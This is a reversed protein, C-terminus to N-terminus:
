EVGTFKTKSIISTYLDQVQSYLTIITTLLEPEPQQNAQILKKATELADALKNQVTEFRSFLDFLVAFKKDVADMQARGDHVSPASHAISVLAAERSQRVGDQIAELTTVSVQNVKLATELTVSSAPAFSSVCGTSLCGSISIAFVLALHKM